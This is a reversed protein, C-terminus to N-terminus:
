RRWVTPPKGTMLDNLSWLEIRWPTLKLLGFTPDEPGGPFFLGPDYGLPPPASKFLDWLRRKESLSEEWTTRCDAHVQEQDQDWYACSVTANHALDKAKASHRATLIWGTSGEWLPHLIRTRVRNRTDVTAVSCWVTRNVRRLFESEIAEFTAASM